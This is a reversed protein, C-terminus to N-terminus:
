ACIRATNMDNVYWIHSSSSSSTLVIVKSRVAPSFTYEVRIRKAKEELSKAHLLYVCVFAELANSVSKSQAALASPQM